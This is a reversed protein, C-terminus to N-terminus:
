RASYFLITRPLSLSAVLIFVYGSFSGIDAHQMVSDFFFSQRKKLWVATKEHKM